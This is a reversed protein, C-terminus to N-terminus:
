ETKEVDGLGPRNTPTVASEGSSPAHHHVIDEGAQEGSSYENKDLALELFVRERWITCAWIGWLGALIVSYSRLLQSVQQAQSMSPFWNISEGRFTGSTPNKSIKIDLLMCGNKICFQSQLTEAASLNGFVDQLWIKRM